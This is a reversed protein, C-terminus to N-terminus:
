SRRGALRVSRSLAIVPVCIDCDFVGTEPDFGSNTPYYEFMPRADYQMGSAPLWDRLVEMWAEGIQAATGNFKGVEYRGGPLTAILAKGTAVYGAPVEVCADYRCKNAPTISADDHSIGYRPLGLLYNSAMWPYATGRWFEGIAPGYPGIHRLYTVTAPKLTKVKVQM